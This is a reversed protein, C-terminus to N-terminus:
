ILNLHIIRALRTFLRLNKDRTEVVEEEIKDEKGLDLIEVLHIKEEMVHKHDFLLKQKGFHVLQTTEQIVRVFNTRKEKDQNRIM